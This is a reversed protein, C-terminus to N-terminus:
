FVNCFLDIVFDSCFFELVFLLFNVEAQTYYDELQNLVNKIREMHPRLLNPLESENPVKFVIQDSQSYDRFFYFKEIPTQDLPRLEHTM